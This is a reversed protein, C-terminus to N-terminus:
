LPQICTTGRALLQLIHPKCVSQIMGVEPATWRIPVKGGVSMYYASEVNKSM